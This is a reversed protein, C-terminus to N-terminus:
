LLGAALRRWGDALRELSIGRSKLQHLVLDARLPALLADAAYDPDADPAAERLLHRVHTHLFVYPAHNHRSGGEAAALIEGNDAVFALYAPGFALLREAPPAGPGVPPAGRILHEQLAAERESLLARVLGTRDGFRRFLTGKGVGAEAAIRDLSVCDVGECAILRGAADLIRRRNRQADAREAPVADIQPLEEVPPEVGSDVNRVM